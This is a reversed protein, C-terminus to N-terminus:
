WDILPSVASTLLAANLCNMNIFPILKEIAPKNPMGNKPAIDVRTFM